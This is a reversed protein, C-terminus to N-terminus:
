PARPRVAGRILDLAYVPVRAQIFQENGGFNGEYRLVGSGTDLAIYTNGPVAPSKGEEPEIGPPPNPGVIALGLDAGAERRVIRAFAEASEAGGEGGSGDRVGFLRALESVELAVVGRRLFRVREPSACLRQIVAGGTNSEAVAITLGRETLMGAVVEELRVEGTGFISDGLRGRVKAELAGIM